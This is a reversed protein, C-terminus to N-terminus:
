LKYLFKIETSFPVLGIMMADFLSTYGSNYNVLGLDVQIICRGSLSYSGKVGLGTSEGTNFYWDDVPSSYTSGTGPIDTYTKRSYESHQIYTLVAQHWNFYIGINMKQLQIGPSLRLNFGVPNFKGLVNRHNMIFLDLNGDITFRQALVSGYAYGAFFNGAHNGEGKLAIFLPAKIGSYIYSNSIEHRVPLHQYYCASIGMFADANIGASVYNGTMDTVSVPQAELHKGPLFITFALLVLPYIRNTNM